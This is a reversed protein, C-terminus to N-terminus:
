RVAEITRSGMLELLVPALAPDGALARKWYSQAEDIRGLSALASGANFLTEASGPAWEMALLYLECAREHQGDQHYLAGLAACLEGCLAGHEAAAEARSLVQDLAEQAM